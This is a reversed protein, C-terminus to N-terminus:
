QRGSALREAASDHQTARCKARVRDRPQAAIAFRTATENLDPQEPLDVRAAVDGVSAAAMVEFIGELTPARHM